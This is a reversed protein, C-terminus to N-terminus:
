RDCVGQNSCEAYTYLGGRADVAGQPTHLGTGKHQQVAGWGDVFSGGAIPQATWSLGYPCIRDTCDGGTYGTPCGFHGELGALYATSTLASAPEPHWDEGYVCAGTAGTNIAKDDNCSAAAYALLCSIVVLKMM